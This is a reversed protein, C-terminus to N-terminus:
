RATHLNYERPNVDVNYAMSVVCVKARLFMRLRLAPHYHRHGLQKFHAKTKTQAKKTNADKFDIFLSMIINLGLIYFVLRSSM